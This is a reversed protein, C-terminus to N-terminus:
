CCGCGCCRCSWGCSCALLVIFLIFAVVLRWGRIVLLLLCCAALLVACIYLDSNEQVVLPLTTAPILQYMWAYRLVFDVLIAIYYVYRRAYM